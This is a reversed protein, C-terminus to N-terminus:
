VAHQYTELVHVRKLHNSYFKLNEFRAVNNDGFAQSLFHSVLKDFNLRLGNNLNNAIHWIVYKHINDM